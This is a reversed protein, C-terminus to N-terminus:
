ENQSLQLECNRNMQSQFACVSIQILPDIQILRSTMFHLLWIKDLDVQGVGKPRLGFGPRLKVEDGALHARGDVTLAVDHACSVAMPDLIM